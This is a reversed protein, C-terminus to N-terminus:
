VPMHGYKKQYAARATRWLDYTHKYNKKLNDNYRDQNIGSVRMTGEYDRQLAFLAQCIYAHDEENFPAFLSVREDQLELELTDM